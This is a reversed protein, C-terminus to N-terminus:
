SGGAARGAWEALLLGAAEASQPTGSSVVEAGGRWPVDDGSSTRVLLLTGAQAVGYAFWTESGLHLHAGAPTLQRALTEDEMSRSPAVVVFQLGPYRSPAGAALIEWVPQCVACSTTVFALVTYDHDDRV